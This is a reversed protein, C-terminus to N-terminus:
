LSAASRRNSSRTMSTNGWPKKDPQTYISPYPSLHGPTFALLHEFLEFYLYLVFERVLFLDVDVGPGSGHGCIIYM